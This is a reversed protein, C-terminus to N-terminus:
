RQRISKLKRLLLIINNNKTLVSLLIYIGIGLTVQVALLVTNPMNIYQLPFILLCMIGSLLISPIIDIFQEKFTYGALRRVPIMNLIMSMVALGVSAVSIAMVSINMVALLVVISIGKKIAEYRLCIDSRGLAKLIQWNATQIPQTLWYVCMIRLYPVCMLWKETLLVCVFPRAVVALGLMMPFVIYSIMRLSKRAFEKLELINDNKMSLYPFLVDNVSANINNMVIQPFYNGRDYFALAEETYIKGIILTRLQSFSMNIFSSITLRWSFGMLQKARQFSFLFRPYWRVIMFLIVTSMAANLLYQLVLAWVGFGIYAFVVGCVGSVATAAFTAFFLKKFLLHKAVYAHQITNVSGVIIKLALVRIVSVLLPNEYFDAIVPAIFYLVMYILLGTCVSCYFITSFDLEDSEKKQILSLGFGSSVFVDAINIFVLVLSIIGYEEPILLRALIISIIFSVGQTLIKEM